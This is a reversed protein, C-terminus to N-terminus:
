GKFVLLLSCATVTIPLLFLFSFPLVFSGLVALSLAPLVLYKITSFSCKTIKMAVLLAIAGLAIYAALLGNEGCNDIIWGKSTEIAGSYEGASAEAQDAINQLRAVLDGRPM